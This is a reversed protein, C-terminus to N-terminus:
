TEESWYPAHGFVRVTALCMGLQYGCELDVRFVLGGPQSYKFWRWFLDRNHPYTHIRGALGGFSGAWRQKSFQSTRHAIESETTAQKWYREQASERPWPYLQWWNTVGVGRFPPLQTHGGAPRAPFSPWQYDIRFWSPNYAGNRWFSIGWPFGVEYEPSNGYWKVWEANSGVNRFDLILSKRFVKHRVNDRLTNLNGVNPFQVDVMISAPVRGGPLPNFRKIRIDQGWMRQQRLMDLRTYAYYGPHNRYPRSGTFDHFRGQVRGFSQSTDLLGRHTAVSPRPDAYFTEDRELTNPQTSVSLFEM